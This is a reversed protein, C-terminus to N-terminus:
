PIIVPPGGGVGQGRGGREDSGGLPRSLEPAFVTPLPPARLKTNLRVNNCFDTLNSKYRSVVRSTVKGHVLLLVTLFPM